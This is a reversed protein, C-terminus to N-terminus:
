EDGFLEKMLQAEEEELQKIEDFIEHTTKPPTFKYFLRTFPIEYGVKDKTRDMWATSNYPIVNEIFFKDIDETLQILEYDRKSTDEQPKGKKIIPKSNEDLVPSEVTIKTYGFFENDFIKSEVKLEYNKYVNEKNDNYVYTILAISEDDLDVRKKGISKRRKIYCNSADILQVKGVRDKSKGKSLVWIYTSIGTNYFLDTPLQIIAELLDNEIIYKRIESPGSGADGNFLASGNQIIAMRGTGEKLKKVGNLLFLMQGDSIAPLGPGFRGEYGLKSHEEKVKKEELKWDIGFPPNSIIYDFEYGTFKDDNLTDGFKMNQANGGKILMDAKAIAYTEPNFEQGFLSLKSDSNIERIKEDLCGLMQSTGMTMDYATRVIGNQSIHEKENAILLETMLYIIDRSTFHAGAQEDYSESFKRILEEFIYGMDTSTIKDPHMDAKKSNFEQVVIYLVNGKNMTELTQEFKFNSIIDKVNDSFGKLYSDFNSIINDPDALLSEYTYPSINYFDYGTKKCLLGEKIADITNSAELKKNLELVQKKTSLLADDFRKLVTMPLIVKGYEHPKFLGVLHNAINWILNAKEQINTTTVKGFENATM